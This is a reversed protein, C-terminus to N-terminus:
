RPECPLNDIENALTDEVVFKQHDWGWEWSRTKKEGYEKPTESRPVGAMRAFRGNEHAQRASDTRSYEIKRM